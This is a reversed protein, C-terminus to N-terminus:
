SPKIHRWPSSDLKDVVIMQFPQISPAIQMFKIWPGGTWDEAVHPSEVLEVSDKRPAKCSLLTSAWNVVACLDM